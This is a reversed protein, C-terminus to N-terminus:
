IIGAVPFADKWQERQYDGFRFPVFGAPKEGVLPEIIVDSNPNVFLPISYRDSNGRNIVRHPTASFRGNSWVQMIKGLNIIFTNEIPPAGVWEGSKNQIELGGSQDQWLVTFGGSDAHPLVGIDYQSQPNEQPPYHNLKLRTNPRTFYGTFFDEPLKLALAFACALQEALAETTRFYALMVRKFEAAGAPWQNPGAILDNKYFPSDHGIWFGEQHNTAANEQGEFSRYALPLYGRMRPDLKVRLKEDMPKSFFVSAQECLQAILKSDVGHNKIYFFGIDRCAQEIEDVTASSWKGAAADAFDIVPIESFDLRRSVPLVM